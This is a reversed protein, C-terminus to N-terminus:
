FVSLLMAKSHQMYKRTPQAFFLVHYNSNDNIKQTSRRVALPVCSSHLCDIVNM